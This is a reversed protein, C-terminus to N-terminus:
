ELYEESGFVYQFSIFDNAPIFDFEIVAADYTTTGVLASLDDDGPTGHQTTTSGSMNPGAISSVTGTSLVIGREIGVADAGGTFIGLASPAGTYTFTDELIDIGSNDYMLEAIIDEVSLVSLDDTALVAGTAPVLACCLLMCCILISASAPTRNM